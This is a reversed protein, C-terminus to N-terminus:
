LSDVCVKLEFMFAFVTNEFIEKKSLPKLFYRYQCHKHGIMMM